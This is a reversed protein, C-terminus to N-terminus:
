KIFMELVANNLTMDGKLFVVIYELITSSMFVVKKKVEM